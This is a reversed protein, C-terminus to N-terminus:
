RVNLNGVKCKAQQDYEDIVLLWVDSYDGTPINMSPFTAAWTRTEADYEMVQYRNLQTHAQGGVYGYGHPGIWVPSDLGPIILGARYVFHHSLFRIPESPSRYITGAIEVNKCSLAPIEDETYECGRRFIVQHLPDYPNLQSHLSLSMTVSKMSRTGYLVRGRNGVVFRGGRSTTIESGDCYVIRINQVMVPQESSYFLRKGGASFKGRLLPADDSFAASTLWLFLAFLFLLSKRSRRM